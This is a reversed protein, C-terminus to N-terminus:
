IGLSQLKASAKPGIGNVRNAPLPWIRRAVESHDLLTIGGPKDFESCLKSLLKNPTIGISCSLGTAERVAAQLRQALERAGQMPDQPTGEQAGAVNTLDIFIEDIG